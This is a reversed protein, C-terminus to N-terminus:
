EGDETQQSAAKPFKEVKKNLLNNAFARVILAEMSPIIEAPEVIYASFYSSLDALDVNQQSIVREREDYSRYQVNKTPHNARYITQLDKRNRNYANNIEKWLNQRETKGCYIASGRSDYFLYIGKSKELLEIVSTRYSNEKGGVFKSMVQLSAERKTPTQEIKFYEVIPTIKVM